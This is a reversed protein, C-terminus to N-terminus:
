KLYLGSEVSDIILDKFSQIMGLLQDPLDNYVSELDEQRVYEGHAIKNRYKILKTNLFNEKLEFTSTRLGLQSLIASLVEYNLNSHTNIVSSPDVRFKNAKSEEYCEFIKKQSSFSNASAGKGIRHGASMHLFNDTMDQCKPAVYSLYNLYAEACYKIHGEWHSYLLVISSRMVVSKKHQRKDSTLFKLNTFERKRWALDNDLSDQLELASRIKM